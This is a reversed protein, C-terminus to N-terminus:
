TVFEKYLEYTKDQAKQTNKAHWRHKVAALNDEELEELLDFMVEAGAMRIHQM